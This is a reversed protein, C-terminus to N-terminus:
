PNLREPPRETQRSGPEHRPELAVSSADSWRRNSARLRNVSTERAGPVDPMSVAHLTDPGRGKATLDLTAKKHVIAHVGVDDAAEQGCRETGLQNLVARNCADTQDPEPAHM